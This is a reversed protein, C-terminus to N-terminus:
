DVCFRPKGDKKTAIVVYFSWASSAPAILGANLMGQVEAEVVEYHGSAMRRPRHYMPTKKTLQFTHHTPIYVGRLDNLSWALIGSEDHHTCIEETISKELHSLKIKVM